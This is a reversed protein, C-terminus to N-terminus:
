FRYGVLTGISFNNASGRDDVIPSNAADGVLRRYGGFASISWSDTLGYTLTLSLAVDKVGADANFPSLGSRAADGASIGFRNSMYDESAWSTSVAAGFSLREALPLEVRARPTILGGNGHLADYTAEVELVYQTRPKDSFDYGALIGMQLADSPRKLQRVSNDDVNDYDFLYNATLGLRFHDDPLFNSEFRTGVLRLYTDPHYLNAVQLDWVPVLDYDDSGEYDPVVGVGVGLFVRAGLSQDFGTEPLLLGDAAAPVRLAVVFITLATTLSIALRM